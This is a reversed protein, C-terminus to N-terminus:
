AVNNDDVSFYVLLCNGDIAEVAVWLVDGTLGAAITKVVNPHAPLAAATRVGEILQQRVDANAAVAPHVIYLVAATTQGQVARQAQYGDAIRLRWLPAGVVYDGLRTGAPFTRNTESASMPPLTSRVQARAPRPIHWFREVAFIAPASSGCGM